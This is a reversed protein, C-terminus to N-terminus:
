RKQSHFCKMIIIVTLTLSDMKKSLAAKEIIVSKKNFSWESILRKLRTKLAKIQKAGPEFAYINKFSGMNERIFEELTDGTFAGADVFTSNFNPYFESPSFYM